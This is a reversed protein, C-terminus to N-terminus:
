FLACAVYGSYLPRDMSQVFRLLEQHEVFNHAQLPREIAVM